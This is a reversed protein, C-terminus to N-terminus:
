RRATRALLGDIVADVAAHFRTESDGTVLQAAHATILPFREPPLATFREYLEDARDRPAALRADAEIASHNVLTAFIDVAWAADQPALGGALLIGLQNELLRVTAESRPPAAIATAAIGPHAIFARRLRALLEHVQDRWRGADPAELEVAAVIREQMAQLLGERGSVYVYLSAPGTDLAAAVKRMTVAEVGQSALIELAADVVADESLPPKAPRDRTSRRRSESNM